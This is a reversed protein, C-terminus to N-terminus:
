VVLQPFGVIRDAHEGRVTLAQDANRIGKRGINLPIRWRARTSVTGGVFAHSSQAVGAPMSVCVCVCVCLATGQIESSRRNHCLGNNWEEFKTICKQSFVFLLYAFFNNEFHQVRLVSALSQNTVTDCNFYTQKIISKCIFSTKFCLLLFFHEYSKNQKYSMNLSTHIHCLLVQVLM